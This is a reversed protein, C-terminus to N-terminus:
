RRPLEKHLKNELAQLKECLPRIDKPPEGASWSVSKESRDSFKVVIHETGQDTCGPCGISDPLSFLVDRADLQQLQAWRKQSVDMRVTLTPYKRQQERMTSKTLTAEGANVELDTFCYGDCLSYSQGFQISILRVTKTQRTKAQLPETLGQRLKRARKANELRPLRFGPSNTPPESQCTAGQRVLGNNREGPAFSFCTLVSLFLVLLFNM